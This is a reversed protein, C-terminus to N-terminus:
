WPCTGNGLNFKDFKENYDRGYDDRAQFWHGRNFDFKWKNKGWRFTSWTGRIRFHINDYVEGDYVITGSFYYQPNDRNFYSENYQCNLVDIERAILHYVPLSRMIDTSYTLVKAKSPDTSEPNIAGSWAPVGEYVFYEFNPHPDDLYPVRISRGGTDTATIRYRVLRRHTQQNAPLQVIYIDDGAVADGNLGDDHMALNSWNAANEYAPNSVTVLNTSPYNPLTIPIYSGPNVLQYHLTVNKVGDPDTVKATITVVDNSKPQKPSHKVQRIQPPINDVHVTMNKAAPTPYASRWSGGLDNDFLPNMLQISYGNGVTDSPVSDGVTPWPFGLKYEVRDVEQGGADCLRIEEGENDLRGEFPGFVLASSIGYKSSVTVVNVAGTQDQVVVLYGNRPLRSGAPFTYSIGDSFYWSSIDVDMTGANYLEVFEVLETKVDPNYHIENIVVSPTDARLASVQLLSILFILVLIKM